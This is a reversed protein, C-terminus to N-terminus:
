HFKEGKSLMTLIAEIRKKRIEPKRATQIRWGIAYTNARNLSLFFDEAKKDNALEKMFDEPIQMDRAGDYANQWSGNVKALEVIKLGTPKMRGEAILKDGLLQNSKSWVSTKKRPTFRTLYYKEDYKNILGDIWGYCLAVQLAEDYSVSIAGTNKKAIKLWIALFKDNNNGLWDDFQKQSEFLYVPTDKHLQM